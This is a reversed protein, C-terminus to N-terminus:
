FPGFVCHPHCTTLLITDSANANNTSAFLHTSPNTDKYLLLIYPFHFHISFHMQKVRDTLYLYVCIQHRCNCLSTSSTLLLAEDSITVKPFTQSQQGEEGCHHRWYAPPHHFWFRSLTTLHLSNVPFTVAVV